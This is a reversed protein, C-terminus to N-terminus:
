NSRSGQSTRNGNMTDKAQQAQMQLDQASGCHEKEFRSGIPVESRCFFTQGHFTKKKYGMALLQKEAAADAESTKSAAATATETAPAKIVPQISSSSAAPQAAPAAPAAPQAAPTAAPPAPEDASWAISAGCVGLAVTLVIYKSRMSIEM